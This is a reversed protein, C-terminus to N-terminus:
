FEDLLISPYIQSKFHMASVSVVPFIELVGSITIMQLRLARILKFSLLSNNLSKQPFIDLQM